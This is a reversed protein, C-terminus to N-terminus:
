DAPTNGGRRLRRVPSSDGGSKTRRPAEPNSGSASPPAVALEYEKQSLIRCLRTELKKAHLGPWDPWPNELLPVYEKWSEDGDRVWRWGPKLTMIDRTLEDLREARSQEGPPLGALVDTAAKRALEHFSCGYWEHRNTNQLVADAGGPFDLNQVLFTWYLGNKNTEALGRLEPGGVLRANTAEDITIRIPPYPRPRRKAFEIVLLVIAGMIAQMADDGIEDGREM